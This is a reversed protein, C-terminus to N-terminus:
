EGSLSDILVKSIAEYIGQVDKESMKGCLSNNEAISILARLIKLNWQSSERFCTYFLMHVPGFFDHGFDVGEEIYLLGLCPEILGKEPLAHAIGFGERLIFYPGNLKCNEVTADVYGRSIRQYRILPRAAMRLADEWDHCIATKQVFEPLFLQRLRITGGEKQMSFKENLLRVAAEIEIRDPSYQNELVIKQLRAMERDLRDEVVGQTKRESLILYSLEYINIIDERSLLPDVVIVPKDSKAINIASIVFDVGKIREDYYLSNASCIGAIHFNFIRKVRSALLQGVAVGGPCAVLVNLKKEAPEMRDMAAVLYMVIYTIEGYDDYRIDDALFDLCELVAQYIHPYDAKMQNILAPELKENMKRENIFYQILLELLIEDSYLAVNLQQSINGIFDIVRTKIKQHIYPNEERPICFQFLRADNGLVALEGDEPELGLEQAILQYLKKLGRKDLGETDEQEEESIPFGGLRRNMAVFFYLAAIKIDDEPLNMRLQIDYFKVKSWFWELPYRFNLQHLIINQFVSYNGDFQDIMRSLLSILVHRASREVYVLRIGKGPSSKIYVGQTLFQEKLRSIDNIATVQSIDMKKAIEGITVYGSANLLMVFQMIEREQPLMTYVTLAQQGLSELIFTRDTNPSLLIKGESTIRLPAQNLSILYANIHKLDNKLTREGIEYMDMLHGTFVKGDASRMIDMLIEVARHKM